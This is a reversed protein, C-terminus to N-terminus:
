IRSSGELIALRPQFGRGVLRAVLDDCSFMSGHREAHHRALGSEDSEGGDREPHEASQHHAHADVAGCPHRAEGDKRERCQRRPVVGRGKARPASRGCSHRAAQRRCECDADLSQHPQGDLDLAGIRPAALQVVVGIRREEGFAHRQLQREGAARADLRGVIRRRRQPASDGERRCVDADTRTEAQAHQELPEAGGFLAADVRVEGLHRAVRPQGARMPQLFDADLRMLKASLAGVELLEGLVM